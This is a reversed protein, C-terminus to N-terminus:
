QATFVVTLGNMETDLPAPPPYIFQNNIYFQPNVPNTGLPNGDNVNNISVPLDTGPILAINTKTNTTKDTLFFGFVDNFQFVFDNYEESAFVYQFSIVSSTPVFDFELVAADNTTNGTGVITNLDADGPEGNDVSMGDECNYGAVNRASGSSLVIGDTFGIINSSSTFKGAARFAGTYTVNSIQVGPGVLTQALAAPTLKSDTLDDVQIASDAGWGEVTMVLNGGPDNDAVTITGTGLDECVSAAKFSVFVHCTQGPALTTCDTTATYPTSPTVGTFTVTQTTSTNKLGIQLPTSTGDVRQKDERGEGNPDFDPVIVQTTAQQPKVKLEGHRLVKSGDPHTQAFLTFHGLASSLHLAVGLVLFSAARGWIGKFM